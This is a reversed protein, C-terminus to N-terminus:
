LSLEEDEVHRMYTLLKDIHGSNRITKFALNEVSMEGSKDLGAQRMSWIKEKLKKMLQVNDTKTDVLEDIDGMLKLAKYKIAYDDIDIQKLEQKNPKRVWNDHKVSYVATAEVDENALQVYLEVPFGYITIDHQSNWLLRKTNFIDSIDLDCPKGRKDTMNAIIHLDIDSHQTYNYNALSGTFILDDVLFDEMDVFEVFETAIKILQERVDHKLNMGAWLKANLSDHIKFKTLEDRENLFQTLTQKM